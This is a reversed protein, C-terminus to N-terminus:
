NETLIYKSINNILSLPKIKVQLQNSPHSPDTKPVTKVNGDGGKRQITLCDGFKLVGRSSVSIEQSAVYSIVDNMNCLYWTKTNSDFVVFLTVSNDNRTFVENLFPLKNEEFYQKVSNEYCPLILRQFDGTKLRMSDLGESIYSYIDEPMNLCESLNSLWRRDLQSFNASSKKISAKNVIEDSRIEVDGKDRTGLVIASLETYSDLNLFEKVAKSFQPNKNILEAFRLETNFGSKATTSGIGMNLDNGEYSLLNKFDVLQAIEINLANSIKGLNVLSVNVKGSEIRTLYSIDLQTNKSLESLSTDKLMRFYRLRKGFDNLLQEITFM